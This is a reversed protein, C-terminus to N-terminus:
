HALPDPRLQFNAIHSFAGNEQHTMASGSYPAWLSRGKWGTKPDDIRGDVDRAYFGMPYPVRIVVWKETKPLFAVLSDSNTGPFFPVDKGLGFVNKLDVWTAYMHDSGLETGAVKPGPADYIKWGQPCQQGSATPGNLITCRRRDFRGIQGSAFSVWAVGESDIDIGRPNFALYRGNVLPPEYYEIKCTAPAHSGKDMRVIGGPVYPLYDAGWVSHDKPSVGIGYIFGNILTDKKPDAVKLPGDTLNINNKNEINNWKSSDPDIKGDGSTDIVLPCWGEAKEADHTEDWVRTNLWGMATFEGSFYVTNDKDRDFNLHDSEACEPIVEVKNTTPDYVNTVRAKENAMPFLKAFANKPDTCYGPNLGERYITAVWVRDKHDMTAAHPRALPNHDTAPSYGPIPVSWTKSTKPDLIEFTGSSIGLGYIPGQANVSPDRHDSSTQDHIQRSSAWDRVTVVLNREVGQPRPPPTPPLEGAAIRTTWDTFMKLAAPRGFRIFNNNM